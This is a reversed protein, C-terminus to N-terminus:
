MFNEVVKQYNYPYVGYDANEIEQPTPITACSIIFVFFMYVIRKM